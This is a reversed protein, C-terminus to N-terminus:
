LTILEEGILKLLGSLSMNTLCEYCVIGKPAELYQEGEYIENGCESCRKIEVKESANPCRSHCPTQNCEMCM